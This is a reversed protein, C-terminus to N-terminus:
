KRKPGGNAWYKRCNYYAKMEEREGLACLWLFILIAAAIGAALWKGSAITSYLVVFGIVGIIITLM